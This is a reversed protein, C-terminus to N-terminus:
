GPRGARRASPRPAPAASRSSSRARRADRAAAAPHRRPSDAGSGARAVAQTFPEDRRPASVMLSRVMTPARGCNTLTAASDRASPRSGRRTRAPSRGCRAASRRCMDLPTRRPARCGSARIVVSPIAPPLWPSIVPRMSSRSSCTSTRRPAPRSAPTRRCWSSAPRRAPPPSAAGDRDGVDLGPQPREVAAHRLLDIADDGVPERGPQEARGCAATACGAGRPGRRMPTAPRHRSTRHPARSRRARARALASDQLLVAQLAAAVHQGGAM